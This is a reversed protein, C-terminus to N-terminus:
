WPTNAGLLLFQARLHCQGLATLPWRVRRLSCGLSMLGHTPRLAQLAHKLDVHRLALATALDLDDGADFVRDRDAPYEVVKLAVRTPRRYLPGGRLTM